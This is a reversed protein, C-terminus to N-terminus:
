LPDEISSVVNNFHEVHVPAEVVELDYSVQGIENTWVSPSAGTFIVRARISCAEANLQAATRPLTSVPLRIYRTMELVAASSPDSEYPKDIFTFDHYTPLALRFGFENVFELSVINNMTASDAARTTRVLVSMRLKIVQGPRLDFFWDTDATQGPFRQGWRLFTVSGIQVWSISPFLFAPLRYNPNTFSFIGRNGAYASGNGTVAPAMATPPIVPNSTVVSNQFYSNNHMIDGRAGSGEKGLGQFNGYFSM